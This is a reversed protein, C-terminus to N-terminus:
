KKARARPKVKVEALKEIAASKGAYKPHAEIQAILGLIQVNDWLKLTDTDLKDDHTMPVSVGMLSARRALQVIKGKRVDLGNDIAHRIAEMVPILEVADTKRAEKFTDADVKICELGDATVGWLIYHMKNKMGSTDAYKVVLNGDATFASDKEKVTPNQFRGMMGSALIDRAFQPLKDASEAVKDATDSAVREAHQRALASTLIATM